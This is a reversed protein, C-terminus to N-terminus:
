SNKVIKRGGGKPGTATIRHTHEYWQKGCWQHSCPHAVKKACTKHSCPGHKYSPGNHDLFPHDSITTLRDGEETITDAIVKSNPQFM